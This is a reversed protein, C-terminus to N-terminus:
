SQATIITRDVSRAPLALLPLPVSRLPLAFPGPRVVVALALSNGESRHFSVGRSLGPKVSGLLALANSLRAPYAGPSYTRL